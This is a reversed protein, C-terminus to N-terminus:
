SRRPLVSRIQSSPATCDKVVLALASCWTLCAMFFLIGGDSGVVMGAQNFVPMQVGLPTFLHFVIAGSMIEFALLAGWAWFRSFLAIAAVLEAGGVLYGGYVAFWPMAFFEGLVGFIHQTEYSHSFKFFLSQIFVFAIWASLIWRWHQKFFSM